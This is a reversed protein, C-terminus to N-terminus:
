TQRPQPGPKVGRPQYDRTPDLHLERLLHGHHTIIRIHLDDALLLVRTGTHPKGIGIHHLRSNHRLTVVGAKDVIDRRIRYHILGPGESPPAAKPRATFAEAPTRRGIARHPRHHNYIETFTDLQAQLGALDTAPDHATLRKKMTQHFREVKGCTQPHYARSHRLDIHLGACLKEFAVQALGRPTGTFVAANDTLVSAPLGHRVFGAQFDDIVDGGTVTPHAVCSVLLRSHDDLINLIEVDTDDALQWHTADAQWRENPQEAQFRIHSSKPRKRPEPTVFGRRVLIRWITSAAPVTLGDRELHWAITHAGADLGDDVLQKRLEIIRQEVEPATARANGHPRRSRATLGVEGETDYRGLLTYIWQRSVDYDRAVEAVTRGELRVGTVVLRALSMNVVEL